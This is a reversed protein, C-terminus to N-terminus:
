WWWTDTNDTGRGRVGVLLSHEGGSAVRSLVYTSSPTKLERSHRVTVNTGYQIVHPVSMRFCCPPSVGQHCLCFDTVCFLVTIFSLPKVKMKVKGTSHSSHSQKKFHVRMQDTMWVAQANDGLRHLQRDSLQSHLAHFSKVSLKYKWVLNLPMVHQVSGLCYCQFLEAQETLSCQQNKTYTHRPVKTSTRPERLNTQGVFLISSCHDCDLFGALGKWSHQETSIWRLLVAFINEGENKLDTRM